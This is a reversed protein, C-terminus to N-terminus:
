RSFKKDGLSVEICAEELGRLGRLMEKSSHDSTCKRGISGRGIQVVLEVRLSLGKRSRRGFWAVRGHLLGLLRQKRSCCCGQALIGRVINILGNLFCSTESNGPTRCGRSRAGLRAETEASGRVDVAGVSFSSLCSSVSLRGSLLADLPM